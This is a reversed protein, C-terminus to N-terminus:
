EGPDFRDRGDAARTGGTGHPHGAPGGPPDIGLAALREAFPVFEEAAEPGGQEGAPAASGAEPDRKAPVPEGAPPRPAAAGAPLLVALEGAAREIRAALEDATEGASGWDQAAAYVGTPLVLARAYAFLPRLAHDLVLSHRPTGGTAAILVPKGALAGPEFLDFFSKFLGSYSASFVPTVAILGDAGTVEELAAALPPGPFGSTLHQAIPVALERLEIFRTAAGTRAVTAAALREALLRTASPVNVGASVVAIRM